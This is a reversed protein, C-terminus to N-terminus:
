RAELKMLFDMISPDRIRSRMRSEIKIRMNIRQLSTQMMRVNTKDSGDDSQSNSKDKDEAFGVEGGGKDDDHGRTRAKLTDRTMMM